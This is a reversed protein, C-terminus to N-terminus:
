AIARYSSLDEGQVPFELIRVDEGADDALAESTALRLVLSDIDRPARGARARRLELHSSLGRLIQEDEGQRHWDVDPQFAEIATDAADGSIRFPSSILLSVGHERAAEALRRWAEEDGRGGAIPPLGLDIAVLSLGSSLIAEVSALAQDLRRPRVWLLRGLDVGAASAAQPDLGDGLDVLAACRGDATASALATLVMSFRGGSRQGYLEVTEGPRLGGTLLRDFAGTGSSLMGAAPTAATPAGASISAPISEPSTYISQVAQM